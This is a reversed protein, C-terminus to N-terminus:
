PGVSLVMFRATHSLRLSGCFFSISSVLRSAWALHRWSVSNTSLRAAALAASSGLPM